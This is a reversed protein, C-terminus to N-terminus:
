HPHNPTISVGRSSSVVRLSLLKEGLLLSQSSLSDRLRQSLLLLLLLFLLLLHLLHHKYKDAESPPKDTLRRGPNGVADLPPPPPSPPPPPPPPTCGDGARRRKLNVDVGCPECNLKNFAQNSRLSQQISPCPRLQLTRNGGGPSKWGAEESTTILFVGASVCSFRRQVEVPM